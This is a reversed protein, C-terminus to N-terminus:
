RYGILQLIIKLFYHGAGFLIGFVTSTLATGIFAERMWGWRDKNPRYFTINPLYKLTLQSFFLKTYSWLNSFILLWFIFIIIFYKQMSLESSTAQTLKLSLIFFIFLSAIQLLPKTFRTRLLRKILNTKNSFLIEQLNLFTNNVWDNDESKVTLISNGTPSSILKIDIFSGLFRNTDLSTGTELLIFIHDVNNAKNFHEVVSSLDFVRFGKQDYRITYIVYIPDPQNLKTKQIKIYNDIAELTNINIEINNLEIDRLHQEM